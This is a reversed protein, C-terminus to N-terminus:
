WKANGEYGAKILAAACMLSGKKGKGIWRPDNLIDQVGPPAEYLDCGQQAVLCRLLPLMPSWQLFIKGGIHEPCGELSTLPNGSGYFNQDVEKPAGVLNTLKNDYCIFNRVHSPSGVLSELQRRPCIFNGNVFGIPITQPLHSLQTDLIMDGQIIRVSDGGPYLQLYKGRFKYYKRLERIAETRKVM